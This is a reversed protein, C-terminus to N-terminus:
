ILDSVSNELILRNGSVPILEILIENRERMSGAQPSSGDTLGAM